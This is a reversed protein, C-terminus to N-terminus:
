DVLKLAWLTLDNKNTFFLYDEDPSLFLKEADISAGFEKKPESIINSYGANLDFVWIDDSYHTIGRYWSTPENESLGSSPVGCYILSSSKSSWICKDALTPTLRTPNGSDSNKYAAFVTGGTPDNYSVAINALNRSPQVLLGRLSGIIKTLSGDKTQLNYSYGDTLAPKTTIVVSSDGVPSMNWQNFSLSLITSARTGDFNASTIQPQNKITYFIKDIGVVMSDINAPLGSSKTTYMDSTSTGSPPLLAYSTSDVIESDRLTRFIVASGNPKWIAEYVKPVTTNVIKVKTLSVPDIDVIHGTSREVYRVNLSGGKNFAVAGSVPVDSLKFLHSKEAVSGTGPLNGEADTNLPSSGDGSGFPLVNELTDPTTAVPAQRFFVFWLAISAVLVFVLLIIVKKTM